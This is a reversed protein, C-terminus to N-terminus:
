DRSTGGFGTVTRSRRDDPDNAGSVSVTARARRPGQRRACLRADGTALGVGDGDIGGSPGPTTTLRVTTNGPDADAGWAPMAIATSPSVVIDGVPVHTTGGGPVLALGATLPAAGAARPSSFVDTRCGLAVRGEDDRGDPSWTSAVPVSAAPSM